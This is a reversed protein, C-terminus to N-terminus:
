ILGTNGGLNFSLPNPLDGGREGEGSVLWHAFGTVLFDASIQFSWLM